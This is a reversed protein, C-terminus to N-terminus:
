FDEWTMPITIIKSYHGAKALPCKCLPARFISEVGELCVESGCHLRVSFPRASFNPTTCCVTLARINPPALPGFSIDIDDAYAAKGTRRTKPPAPGLLLDCLCHPYALTSNGLNNIVGIKTFNVGQEGPAPIHIVYGAMIVHIKSQGARRANCLMAPLHRAPVFALYSNIVKDSFFSCLTGRM